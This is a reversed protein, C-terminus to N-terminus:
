SAMFSARLVESAQMATLMDVSTTGSESLRFAPLCAALSPKCARDCSNLIWTSLVCCFGRPHLYGILPAGLASVKPFAAWIPPTYSSM